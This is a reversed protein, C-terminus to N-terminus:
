RHSPRNPSGSARTPSALERRVDAVARRTVRETGKVVLWLLVLGVGASGWATVLYRRGDILGVAGATLCALTFFYYAARCTITLLHAAIHQRDAIEAM